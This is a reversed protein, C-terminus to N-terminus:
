HCKFQDFPERCTNCTYLAKCATSGFLSVLKVDTSKCRPCTVQSDGSIPNKLNSKGPPSIGYKRLKEKAEESLWDTTWVPSYVIKVKVKQYGNEKLKEKIEDEIAKMAPCGNYTPTISVHIVDEEITVSQLIGLEAITIVPIEPDPIASLISFIMETNNKEIKM